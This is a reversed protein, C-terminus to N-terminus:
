KKQIWADATAPPAEVNGSVDTAISYFEYYGKGNPFNFGFSYPGTTDPLPWQTWSGWPQNTRARSRYWLEVTLWAPQWNDTATVAITYPSTTTSAPLPNVSSTPPTTDHEIPVRQTVTSSLGAATARVDLDYDTYGANDRQDSVTFAEVPSDFAGDSPTAPTWDAVLVSGGGITIGWLRYDVTVSGSTASADGSASLSVTGVAPAQPCPNCPPPPYFRASAATIEVVPPPAGAELDVVASAVPSINGAADRVQALIFHFGGAPGVTFTTPNAYPVWPATALDAESETLRMEAVPESLDTFVIRAERVTTAWVGDNASIRVVPPTVDAAVEVPSAFFPASESGDAAVAVAAYRYSGAPLPGDDFTSDTGSRLGLDVRAAGAFRYLHVQGTQDATAASVGVLNGDRPVTALLVQPFARDDSPRRPDRGAALESSDREGGGDTDWSSPDLGAALEAALGLGDGDADTAGDAPDTPDLGFLMESLDAVGDGDADVKPGLVVTASEQREFATGDSRTGSATVTVQYTGALETAWAFTGYVGDNASTDGSGGDDSLPFHREVGSPDTITAEVTAGSLGLSDDTLALRVAIPDGAGGQATAALESRVATGVETVAYGVPEPSPVDVATAKLQWTGAEPGDVTIEVTGSGQIVHVDPAVTTETITRGSPAVLTLDFDSGAWSLGFAAATDGAAVTVDTSAQQGQGLTGLSGSRAGERDESCTTTQVVTIQGAQPATEGNFTVRIAHNGVAPKTAPRLFVFYSDDLEFASTVPTAAGDLTAAFSAAALGEAFAGDVTPRVFVPVYTNPCASELPAAPNSATPFLLAIASTGGADEVILDYDTAGDGSVVVIGLKSQGAVPVVWSEPVLWAKPMNRPDVIVSGDSAVPVLAIWLASGHVNEVKVRVTSAGGLNIIEYVAGTAHDLHQDLFQATALPETDRPTLDAYTGDPTGPVGGHRVIEDLIRYAPYEAANPARRVYATVYFDRLADYTAGHVFALEGLAASLADIGCCRVLLRRQFEAVQKELTAGTGYREGLYQFFGAAKYNQNDPAGWGAAITSPDALWANVLDLYSLPLKVADDSQAILDQALQAGSEANTADGQLYYRTFGDIQSLLPIIGLARAEVTHFLEHDVLTKWTANPDANTPDLLADRVFNARLQIHEPSDTFGGSTVINGLVNRIECHIDITVRDPVSFGLQDHYEALTTVARSQIQDAMAQAEAEYTPRSEDVLYRPDYHVIVQADDAGAQGLSLDETSCDRDRGVSFEGNVVLGYVTGSPTGTNFSALVTGSDIDFKYVMSTCFDASWFSSGDPDLTLAFWCDQGAADYLRVTGGAPDLQRIQGRDAVLVGGGPRIRLAFAQQLGTTFSPLPTNQCVDYRLISSGESTYLLTCQDASLDIWDSGVQQIPVDYSALLQGAADFHLVDHSGQAQGVYAEGAANFLISEPASNYGSGFTGLLNGAADFRAVQQSSFGTVYLRGLKDFAMGTTYGTFGTDLTANLTGDPLRWQVKGNSVAVFVDGVAFTTSTQTVVEAAGPASTSSAGDGGGQAPVPDGGAVPAPLALALVLLPSVALRVRWRGHAKAELSTM